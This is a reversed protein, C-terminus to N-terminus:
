VAEQNENQKAFHRMNGLPRARTFAYEVITSSRNTQWDPDDHRSCQEGELTQIMVNWMVDGFMM